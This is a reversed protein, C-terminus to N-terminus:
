GTLRWTREGGIASFASTISLVLSLSLADGLFLDLLLDELDFVVVVVTSDIERRKARVEQHNTCGVRVIEIGIVFEHIPVVVCLHEHLRSKGCVRDIRRRNRLRNRACWGLAAVWPGLRGGGCCTRCASAEPSAVVPFV